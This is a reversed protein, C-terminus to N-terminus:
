DKVEAIFKDLYNYKPTLKGNFVIVANQLQRSLGSKELPKTFDAQILNPIFQKLQNSFFTSSDHPLECPLNDTALMLIGNSELTDSISRTEPDCLYAPNGSDTAKVNCEISGNVDCTIDAIGELKRMGARQLQKLSDWTVFRPYKNEWYIANILVSIYPLYQDFRSQYKEPSAYYEQLDFNSGDRKQVLDSEKFVCLYVENPSHTNKSLNPLESPEIYKVPLTNLINQAGRSVNGYGLVGFVLPSLESALGRQKIESSLQQLHTKADQVSPYDIAQKVQSFPTKIGRTNWYQGMLWLINIAGADGAYPGFYVLRRGKEDVIKEYDILTSGISMIKKLMPMNASQGKITHSFFVYIKNPLLKEIPIEKIGLIIEGPSMDDCIEVGVKEYRDEPYFRKKSRQVYARAGTTAIIEGLDEPTLPTRKEYQNKDEARIMLTYM